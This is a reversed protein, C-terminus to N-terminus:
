FKFFPIMRLAMRMMVASVILSFGDPIKFQIALWAAFGSLQVVIPSLTSGQQNTVTMVDQIMKYIVNNLIIPFVTVALTWLIIKWAAFRIAQVGLASALSSGILTLLAGM